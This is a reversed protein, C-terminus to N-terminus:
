LIFHSSFGRERAEPDGHTKLYEEFANDKVLQEIKSVAAKLEEPNYLSWASDQDRGHKSLYLEPNYFIDLRQSPVNIVIEKKFELGAKSVMDLVEDRSNYHTKM